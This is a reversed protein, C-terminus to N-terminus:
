EKEQKNEYVPIFIFKGSEDKRARYGLFKGLSTDTEDAPPKRKSSIKSDDSTKYEDLLIRPHVADPGPATIRESIEVRCSLRSQGAQNSAILTYITTESPTVVRSGLASVIGIGPEIRIHDANSVQWSLMSTQGPMIRPRTTNFSDCVPRGDLRDPKYNKIVPNVIKIDEGPPDIVENKVVSPKIIDPFVAAKAVAQSKIGAENGVQV